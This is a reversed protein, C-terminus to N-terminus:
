CFQMYSKIKKWRGRWIKKNIKIEKTFAIMAVAVARDNGAASADAAADSGAAVVRLPLGQAQADALGRGMLRKVSSISRSRFLM